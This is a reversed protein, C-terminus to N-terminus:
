QSIDGITVISRNEKTLHARAAACLRQPDITDLLNFYDAPNTIHTNHLASEGYWWLLGETTLISSAKSTKYVALTQKLLETDITGAALKEIEQEIIALVRPVHEKQAQINIALHGTDSFYETETHAWYTLSHELRLSTVLRSTWYNGLYDRILQLSIVDQEQSIPVTRYAVSIQVTDNPTHEIVRPLPKESYHQTISPGEGLNQPVEKHTKLASTADFNELPSIVCLLKRKQQYQQAYFDELDNLSIDPISQPTGFFERGFPHSPWLAKKRLQWLYEEPTNARQRAEHLVVEKEKELDDTTFRPEQLSQILTILSEQTQEPQQCHYYHAIESATFANYMIGRKALAVLREDNTKYTRSRKMFVHEFLHALGEKHEPDFRSGAFFWASVISFPIHPVYVELIDTLPTVRKKFRIQHNMDNM